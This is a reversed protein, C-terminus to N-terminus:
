TTWAFGEEASTPAATSATLPDLAESALPSRPPEFVPQPLPPLLREVENPTVAAPMWRGTGVEARRGLGGGDRGEVTAHDFFVVVATIDDTVADRVAWRRAALRVLAEAVAQPPEKRQRRAGVFRVAESSPVWDWVGDSALIVFADAPTLRLHTVDPEATVGVSKAVGDGFARSLALGPVRRDSLWVREPGAITSDEEEEDDAPPPSADMTSVTTLEGDITAESGKISNAASSESESLPDQLATANWREVRGGAALIRKREDPRSPKHDWSLGVAEYRPPSPPLLSAVMDAAPSSAMNSPVVALASAAPPPGVPSSDRNRLLVRPSLASLTHKRTVAGSGGTGTGDETRASATRIALDSSVLRDSDVKCTKDSLPHPPARWRQRRTPLAHGVCSAPMLQEPLTASPSLAAPAAVARATPQAASPLRRPRPPVVRGLVARSDGVNGVYLDDDRVLMFVATSGSMDTDFPATAMLRADAGACATRFVSDIPLGSNLGAAIRTELQRAIFFSAHHGHRGHGDLVGFLSSRDDTGFPLLLMVADQNTKDLGALPEWGTRCRFGASLRVLADDRQRRVRVIRRKRSPHPEKRTRLLADGGDGRVRRIFRSLVGGNHLVGDESSGCRASSGSCPRGYLGGEADVDATEDAEDKVSPVEEGDAATEAEWKAMEAVMEEEDTADADTDTARGSDEVPSSLAAVPESAPIHVLVDGCAGSCGDANAPPHVVTAVMRPSASLRDAVEVIRRRSETLDSPAATWASESPPDDAVPTPAAPAATAVPAAAAAVPPVIKLRGSSRTAWAGEAWGDGSFSVRGRVVDGSSENFSDESSSSTPSSPAGLGSGRSLGSTSRLALDVPGDGDTASRMEDYRGPHVVPPLQPQPSDPSTPTNARVRPRRHGRMMIAKIPASAAPASQLPLTVGRVGAGGWGRKAAATDQAGAVATASAMPPGGDGAEGRHWRSLRWRSVPKNAQM